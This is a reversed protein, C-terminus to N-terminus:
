LISVEHKFQTGRDKYNKFMDFSACAPSLLVIDNHVARKSCVNVIDHMTALGQVIEGTYGATHVAKVIRVSMSGVVILAKIKSRAIVRGLETFDSGKDSGGVILVIPRDFSEIAAITTEPITSFSDNYYAVGHITRVLELRHELGHFQRSVAKISPINSGALVSTLSAAAINELNHIGLLKIESAHCIKEEKGNSRLYVAKDKVFADGRGSRSFYYVHGHTDKSFSSSTADDANLIAMDTKGQYRAISKKAEVYSERSEHYNTSLPDFNALHEQTIKLVVAIHPSKTLDELQFSSLELIVIDGAKIDHVKSLLPIGVNGGLWVHKGAKKLMEYILTSTTGKGKTGTIGIIPARCHEFFLKTQSTINAGESRAEVLEPTRITMGATRVVYDFHTLDTLYAPGLRFDSTLYQLKTYTEGLEERTRKDCCVIHAKEQAFFTATDVGEVSLGLIAVNKDKYLSM